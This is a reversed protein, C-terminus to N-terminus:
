GGLRVDFALARTGRVVTLTVVDGPQYERVSGTLSNASVVPKGNLGVITDDVLIGGRGAASGPEVATVHAGLQSIEGARVWVNEATVGLTAHVATGKEILQDAIKKALNVPIAFGIGSSRESSGVTTERALASTVGIVRGEADVLAGGSNGENTAADVQIANTVTGRGEAESEITSVPRDLASIIGATVSQSLGLPNGIAAVAQGVVLQGSDGLSAPQLDDPPNRMKIVAIDTSADMGVVDAEVIVGSDLILSFSDQGALVHTNTLVYGNDDLIFGAGQSGDATSMARVSVTSPKVVAAVAAWDPAAARTDVIRPGTPGVTPEAARPGLNVTGNVIAMYAGGLAIAAGILAGAIATALSFRRIELPRVDAPDVGVRPDDFPLEPEPEPTRPSAPSSAQAQVGTRVGTQAEARSDADPEAGAQPAGIRAAVRPESVSPPSVEAELRGAVTPGSLAASDPAPTRPSAPSPAGPTASDRTAGPTESEVAGRSGSAAGEGAEPTESLSFEGGFVGAGAWGSASAEAAPTESAVGEWARGPRADDAPMRFEGRVGEADHLHHAGQRTEDM